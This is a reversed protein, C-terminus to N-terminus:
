LRGSQRDTKHGTYIFFVATEKRITEVGKLREDRESEIAEREVRM